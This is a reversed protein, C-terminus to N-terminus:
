KKRTYVAYKYTFEVVQALMGEKRLKIALKDADVKALGPQYLRYTKGGLKREFSAFGRNTM